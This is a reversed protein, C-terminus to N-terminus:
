DAPAAPVPAPHSLRRAWARSTGVLRARVELEAPAASPLRVPVLCTLKRESRAEAATAARAGAEVVGGGVRRGGRRAVVSVLLDARWAGDQRRFVLSRYPISVLVEVEDPRAGATASVEWPIEARPSSWAGGCGALAALLSCLLAPAAHARQRSGPSPAPPCRSM